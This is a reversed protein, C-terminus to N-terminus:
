WWASGGAGASETAFVYRPDGHSGSSGMGYTQDPYVANGENGEGEYRKPTELSPTRPHADRQSIPERQWQSGTLANPDAQNQPSSKYLCTLLESLSPSLQLACNASGEVSVLHQQPFTWFLSSSSPSLNLSTMPSGEVSGKPLWPRIQGLLGSVGRRIQGVSGYLTHFCNQGPVKVIASSGLAIATQSFCLGMTASSHVHIFITLTLVSMDVRLVDEFFARPKRLYM